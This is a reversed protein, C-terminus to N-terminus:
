ATFLERGLVRLADLLDDLDGPTTTPNMIAVRLAACGDIEAQVIYFQGSEILRHRLKRQFASKDAQPSSRIEEPLYRFAVINCEPQHLVEFDPADTLKRHFVQGLEFTVDVMDSLIQEGLLSWLGWLGMAAARKTCEVTRMGSDIEAMGPASPDFLYPASQQFAQFRHDRNRYFVFACLAPVFMMKHADCIVSDALEIGKLLHRHRDSFMAAGGHAADVHMWVQHRQCVEAIEELPDFAGVPTACSCATVAMATKGASQLETLLQDLQVPDLRHRSDLGAKLIHDTGIGLIGAARAIGYHAAEHTVIVPSDTRSHMGSTWSNELMVNRATLLATLNALSGGHTVLGSFSNTAFGLRQGIEQVLAGEVATAWPGMEYIAMVQNTVAGMADFLGALPVSAPVQHGIYRPHHLNQGHDLSAQLLQRFRLSIDELDVQSKMDVPHQDTQHQTGQQLYQRALAINAYPPDWNLVKEERNAVREFHALLCTRWEASLEAFLAPDFATQVRSLPAHLADPFDTTM